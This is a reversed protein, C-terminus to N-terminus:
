GAGSFKAFVEAETLNETENAFTYYGPKRDIFIQETMEWREQDEFLGVPLVYQSPAKLHYFLHTGCQRCFAREAWDSSAYRAVHSEGQIQIGTDCQVALYPGGGWRRCMRCHCADVHSSTPQAEIEVAGCLCHAKM